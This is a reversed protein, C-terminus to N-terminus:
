LVCGVGLISPNDNSAEDFNLKLFGQELPKWKIEKRDVKNIGNTLLSGKFPLSILNWESVVRDDWSSYCSGTRKNRSTHAKVVESILSEIKHIM